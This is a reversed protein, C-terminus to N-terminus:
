PDSGEPQAAPTLDAVFRRDNCTFHYRLAAGPGHRAKTIGAVIHAQGVCRDRNPYLIPSAEFHCIGNGLCAIVLLEYM